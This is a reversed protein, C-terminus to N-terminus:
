YSETEMAISSRACGGQGSLLGEGGTPYLGVVPIEAARNDDDILRLRQQQVPRVTTSLRGEQAHDCAEEAEHCPAQPQEVIVVPGQGVLVTLLGDVEDAVLVLHAGLQAHGLREGEM